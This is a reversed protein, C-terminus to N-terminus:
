KMQQLLPIIETILRTIGLVLGIIAVYYDRGKKERVRLFGYIGMAVSLIAFIGLYDFLWALIGLSLSYYCFLRDGLLKNSQKKRNKREEEEQIIRNRENEHEISRQSRPKSKSKKMKQM